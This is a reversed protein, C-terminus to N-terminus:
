TLRLEHLVIVAATHQGSVSDVVSSMRVGSVLKTWTNM